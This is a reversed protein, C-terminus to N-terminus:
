ENLAWNYELYEVKANPSITVKSYKNLYQILTRDDKVFDDRYWKFIKSIKIKKESIQNKTPDNIFAKAMKTMKSSVNAETYASNMLKPCSYSACNIAFHIRSDGMKRLIDNEIQRLSYNKTGLKAMRFDWIEKGSFSIDNVSSVPYKTLVFKMCYANYANIYYAKKAKKSWDSAPPHDILEKLFADLSDIRPKISKYKVKGSSSVYDKLFRDWITYDPQESAFTMNAILGFAFILIVRKMKREKERGPNSRLPSKM